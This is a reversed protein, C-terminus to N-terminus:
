VQHSGSLNLLTCFVLNREELSTYKDMLLNEKFKYISGEWDRYTSYDEGYSIRKKKYDASTDYINTDSPKIPIRPVNFIFSGGRKLSLWIISEANVLVVQSEDKVLKLLHKCKTFCAEVIKSYSIDVYM